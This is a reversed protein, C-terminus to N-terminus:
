SRWVGKKQNQAEQQYERFRDLHKFPRSEDVRALGLKLLEANFSWHVFEPGVPPQSPIIPIRFYVYAFRADEGPQASPDFELFVERRTILRDALAKAEAAAAPDSDEMRIGALRIKKGTSLVYLVPTEAETVLFKPLPSRIQNRFAFLEAPNWRSAPLKLDRYPNAAERRAEGIWWVLFGLIFVTISIALAKAHKM